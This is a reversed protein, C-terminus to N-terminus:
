YPREGTHVRRHVRLSGSHAFTMSCNHFSCKFPREGTHKRIHRVVHYRRHFSCHCVVCTYPRVSSKDVVIYGDVHSDSRSKSRTKPKPEQKPKSDVPVSDHSLFSPASEMMTPPYSFPIPRDSDDVPIAEFVPEVPSGLHTRNQSRPAPACLFNYLSPDWSMMPFIGPVIPQM